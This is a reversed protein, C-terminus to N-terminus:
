SRLRSPEPRTATPRPAGVGARVPAEVARAFAEVYAVIEDRPMFGHPDPGDYPFDPLRCQWNPTVLCFSDWRQSRWAHAIRNKELIVHAIGRRRLHASISLGAQGGGGVGVPLHPVEVAVLAHADGAYAAAENEIHALEALARGCPMGYKARVRESAISLAARSRALFDALPYSRGPALHDKVVLSPSYCRAGTGDPWRILFHMEPM